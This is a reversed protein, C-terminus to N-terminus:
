NEVEVIKTFDNKNFDGFSGRGKLGRGLKKGLVFSM